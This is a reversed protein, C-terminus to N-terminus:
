RKCDWKNPSMENTIFFFANWVSFRIVSINPFTLSHVYWSGNEKINHSSAFTDLHM